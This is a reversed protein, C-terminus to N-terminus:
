HRLHLFTGFFDCTVTTLPTPIPTPTSLVPKRLPLLLSICPSFLSEGGVDRLSSAHESDWVGVIFWTFDTCKVSFFHFNHLIKVELRLWNQDNALCSWNQFHEVSLWELQFQVLFLKSFQIRMNYSTSVHEDSMVKLWFYMKFECGAEDLEPHNAHYFIFPKLM